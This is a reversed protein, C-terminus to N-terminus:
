CKYSVDIEVNINSYEVFTSKVKLYVFNKQINKKNKDNSM